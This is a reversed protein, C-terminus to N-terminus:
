FNNKNNNNLFIFFFGFSSLKALDKSLFVNKAKDRDCTGFGYQPSSKIDSTPVKGFTSTKNPTEFQLLALYDFNNTKKASLETKNNPSQSSINTENM